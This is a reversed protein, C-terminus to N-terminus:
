GSRLCGWRFFRDSSSWTCICSWSRLRASVLKFYDDSLFSVPVAVNKVPDFATDIWVGNSFVFTRSGVIQVVNSAEEPPSKVIDAGELARQEEADEVASQGSVSPAPAEAKENYADAAIDDIAAEGLPMDETVLYSTYPTVIGYRISLRVIQDITEQNPGTLRIQNLLFGIKRTAWLRPLYHLGETEPGREYGTAFHQDSFRFEQVEGNVMGRLTISGTGGDQFRGVVIVQSGVFLDPLPTPYEDFVKIGEFELELDTLVPTSIKEYFGSVVEDIREGPVVYSSTGSHNQALLDLLFTDVDYGVGFSFLRLNKPAAAEFNSLINESLIEGETPLGDTVFILYTPRNSTVLAAAELLARNIDTSGLPRDAEIWDIARDAESASLLEPSFLEVGTSFTIVNFGDEANLNELIFRVAAQAQVYKEGDMSGSKDLVILVDKPLVDGSTEPKPALMLMYFGDQDATESIDRYTLLHFAQTEGQSYYLSFDTDPTINFAEYGVKTFYATERSIGVSHSPSYVARIPQSTRINVNISVSELPTRSFKETNLPYQYRILDNDATLAETYEIEIRRDGHPDIPFISAQLAGQGVYELIAPDILQRVIEEYTFRAEEASLVQGEVPQGDIWLKFNTVVAEKPIPFLYTGEITFDNPNHFVQDVRTIAVQDDITVDVRHYRIDLAGSIPIPGPCDLCIPPDPIIIGDAFAQTFSLFILALVIKVGIFLLALKKKMIIRRVSPKIESFVTQSGDMPEM